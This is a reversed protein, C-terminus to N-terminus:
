EDPTGEWETEISPVAVAPVSVWQPRVWVLSIDDDGGAATLRAHLEGLVRGQEAPDLLAQGNEQLWRWVEGADAFCRTFGDSALVFTTTLPFQARFHGWRGTFFDDPLVATVAGHGAFALTPTSAREPAVGRVIPTLPFARYLGVDAANVHGIIYRPVRLLEGPALELISRPASAQGNRHARWRRVFECLFWSRSDAPTQASTGARRACVPAPGVVRVLVHDGPCLPVKTLGPEGSGTASNAPVACGGCPWLLAGDGAFAFFASDGFQIAEVGVHQDRPQISVAVCTTQWAREVHKRVVKLLMEQMAPPLNGPIRPPNERVGARRVLLYHAWAALRERVDGGFLGPVFQTTQEAAAQAYLSTTTGDCVVACGERSYWAARDQDKRDEGAGGPSVVVVADHSNLSKVSM